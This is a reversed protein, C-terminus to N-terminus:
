RTKRHLIELILPRMLILTKITTKSAECKLTVIIFWVLVGASYRGNGFRNNNITEFPSKSYLLVAFDIGDYIRGVMMTKICM